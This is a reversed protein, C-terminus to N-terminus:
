GAAECELLSDIAPLLEAYSDILRHAGASGLAGLPHYGWGVGIAGIQAVRAMEMDFTTDGVMVAQEPAIGTEELASLIMSPDPKSPHTDATQITIFHHTLGERELLTVVGRMSKGTAIGLRVDDRASLADIAERAGPFLPEDHDPRARLQAFAAKYDEALRLVGDHDVGPALREIARGLSLGVVSVVARREPAPRGSAAFAQEMAAVIAHQSDVITGDCDFLVLKM